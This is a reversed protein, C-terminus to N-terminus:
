LLCVGTSLVYKGPMWSPASHDDAGGPVKKVTEMIKM